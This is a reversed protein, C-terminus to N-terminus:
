FFILSFSLFMMQPSFEVLIFNFIYLCSIIETAATHLLAMTQNQPFNIVELPHLISFPLASHFQEETKENGIWVKEQWGTRKPQVLTLM